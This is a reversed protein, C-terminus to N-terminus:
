WNILGMGSAGASGPANNAANGGGGSGPAEGPSMTSAGGAQEGRGGGGFFSSGGHGGGLGAASGSQYCNQGDGGNFSYTGGTQQAGLGGVSNVANSGGINGGLASLTTPGTLSSTGTYWTLTTSQSVGTSSAAGVFLSLTTTGTLNISTALYGGAGGGAGCTSSNNSSGGYGGAGILQVFIQSVGAPITTTSYGTTSAIYFNKGLNWISNAGLLTTSTALTTTGTFTSSSTFTNSGTFTNNDTNYTANVFYPDFYITSSSNASGIASNTVSKTIAGPSTSSIYYVSGSTLGSQHTDIGKILVGGNISIGNSAGGQAIGLIVNQINSSTAANAEAWKSSGGDFFVVTGTAITGSANGQVVVSNFNITSTGTITQLVYAQTAPSSSSTPPPFSWAGTITENNQKAAYQAFVQPNNALILQAQAAHTQALTTSATFPYSRSLGRVVGTLIASGDANQTIGSFSIFESRNPYTSDITGYEINSNLYAMTYPVQSIPELFSSLYITTATQNIGGQLYYTGAGTPNFAGFSQNNNQTSQLNTQAVIPTAVNQTPLIPHGSFSLAVLLPTLIANTINKLITNLM